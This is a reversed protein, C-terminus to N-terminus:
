LPQIWPSICRIGIFWKVNGLTNLHVLIVRQAVASNESTSFLHNNYLFSIVRVVIKRASFLVEKNTPLINPYLSWFHHFYPASDKFNFAEGDLLLEFRANSRILLVRCVFQYLKIEYPHYHKKSSKRFLIWQFFNLRSLSWISWLCNKIPYAFLLISGFKLPSLLHCQLTVSLWELLWSCHM